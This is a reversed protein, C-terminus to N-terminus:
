MRARVESYETCVPAAPAAIFVAAAFYNVQLTKQYRREALGAGTLFVSQSAM